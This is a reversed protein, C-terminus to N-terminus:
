FPVPNHGPMIIKGPNMRIYFTGNIIIKTFIFQNIGPRLVNPYDGIFALTEKRDFLGFRRTIIERERDQEIVGLIDDVATKLNVSMDPQSSQDM